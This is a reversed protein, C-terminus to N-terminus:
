GMASSRTRAARSVGQRRSRQRGSSRCGRGRKERLGLADALTRCPENYRDAAAAGSVTALHGGGRVWTALAEQGQRPVNPATLYVARYPKLGTATLDDEDIVDAPINAHQLALYLDFLEALYDVTSANLNGNTADNIGKADWM